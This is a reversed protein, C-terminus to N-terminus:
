HARTAISWLFGTRLKGPEFAPDRALDPAGRTVPLFRTGPYSARRHCALCNSHTGDGSGEDPMRAELWPNFTIRAGGDRERPTEADFSSDLAYHLWPPAAAAARADRPDRSARAAVKSEPATAAQQRAGDWWSTIWIWEPLERTAVHTAVLALYDGAALPRGLAVVAARRSEADAMLRQALLADVRLHRFADLPVRPARAFSRGAFHVDAVDTRAAVGIRGPPEIAVVSRWSTYPNGGRRPAERRPDWYPMPTLGRAAVPWWCTKVVMADVPFEPISRM